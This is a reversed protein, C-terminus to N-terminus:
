HIYLSWKSRVSRNQIHAPGGDILERTGGLVGAVPADVTTVTSPTPKMGLSVRTQRKSVVTTWAVYTFGDAAIHVAGELESPDTEKASLLLLRSKVVSLTDNM